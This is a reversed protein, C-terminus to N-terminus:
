KTAKSLQIIEKFVEKGQVQYLLCKQNGWLRLYIFLVPCFILYAYKLKEDDGFINLIFPLSGAWGRTDQMVRSGDVEGDDGECRAAGKGVVRAVSIEAEPRGYLASGRRPTGEKVM